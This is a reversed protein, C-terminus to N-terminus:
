DLGRSGETGLRSVALYPWQGLMNPLEPWCQMALADLSEEEILELMALYCRSNMPLADATVGAHPAQSRARARVDKRVADEPIAHVREIFQPLSLPHLQIGLTRRLLFPDAALDIFGPAHTGIVGVKAQACFPM